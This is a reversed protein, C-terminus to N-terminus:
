SWTLKIPKGVVQTVVSGVARPLETFLDPKENFVSTGVNLSM